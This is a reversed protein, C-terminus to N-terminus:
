VSDNNIVSYRSIDRYILFITFRCGSWCRFVKTPIPFSKAQFLITSNKLLNLYLKRKQIRWHFSFLFGGYHWVLLWTKAIWLTKSISNTISYQLQREYWAYKHSHTHCIIQRSLIDNWLGLHDLQILYPMEAWWRFLYM